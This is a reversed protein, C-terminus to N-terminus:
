RTAPEFGARPALIKPGLCKDRGKQLYRLRKPLKSSPERLGTICNQLGTIYKKLAFLAIKLLIYMVAGAKSASFYMVAKLIYMVAKLIYMVARLIWM